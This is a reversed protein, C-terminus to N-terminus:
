LVTGGDDDSVTPAAQQGRQKDQAYWRKVLAQWSKIAKGNITWGVSDYHNYFVDVDITIGQEYCFARVQEITPVTAPARINGESEVISSKDISCEVISRPLQGGVQRSNDATKDATQRSNPPSDGVVIYLNDTTIQVQAWENTFQTEGIKTPQISNNVRWNLILIVKSAFLYVLREDILTQLDQKSAKINRMVTRYDNVFGYNDAHMNLHFYLLQPMTPLDLFDDSDTITRSFMRKNAM